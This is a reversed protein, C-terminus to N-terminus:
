AAERARPRRWVIEFETFDDKDKAKVKVFATLNLPKEFSPDDVQFSYFIAGRNPGDMVKKQWAAGAEFAGYAGKIHVIHSPSNDDGTKHETNREFVFDVRINLATYNGEGNGDAGMIMRNIKAM